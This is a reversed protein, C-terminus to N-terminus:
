KWPKERLAFLPQLTKMRNGISLRADRGLRKLLFLGWSRWVVHWLSVPVFGFEREVYRLMNTNYTAFLFAEDDTIARHALADFVPENRYEPKVYAMGLESLGPSLREAVLWGALEEDIFALVLRGDNLLKLLKKPSRPTLQGSNVSVSHVEDLVAEKLNASVQRVIDIAM